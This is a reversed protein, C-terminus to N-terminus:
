VAGLRAMSCPAGDGIIFHDLVRVDVLALAQKLRTTVARDATSPESSGSPHNHALIVAAANHRLAAKVVERAHVEAGDITGSFMEDFAIVRHRTDLFLCAFVEHELHRLRTACYDGAMSPDSLANGREMVRWMIARARHLLLAEEETTLPDDACMGDHLQGYGTRDLILADAANIIDRALEDRLESMRPPLAVVIRANQMARRALHHRASANM